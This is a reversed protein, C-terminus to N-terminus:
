IWWILVVAEFSKLIPFSDFTEWFIATLILRDKCPEDTSFVCLISRIQIPLFRSPRVSPRVSSSNSEIPNPHVIAMVAMDILGIQIVVTVAIM